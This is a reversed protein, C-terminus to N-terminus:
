EHLVAPLASQSDHEGPLSEKGDVYTFERFRFVSKGMRESRLPEKLVKRLASTQASLAQLYNMGALRFSSSFKVAKATAAM